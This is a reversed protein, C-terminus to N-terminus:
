RGETIARQEAELQAARAADASNMIQRWENASIDRGEAHASSVILSTKALQQIVANILAIGIEVKVDNQM